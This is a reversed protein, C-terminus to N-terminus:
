TIGHSTYYNVKIKLATKYHLHDLNMEGNSVQFYSIFLVLPTNSGLDVHSRYIHTYVCVYMYYLNM